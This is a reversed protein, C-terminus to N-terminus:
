RRLEVVLHCFPEPRSKQGIPTGEFAHLPNRSLTSLLPERQKRRSHRDGAEADQISGRRKQLLPLTRRRKLDVDFRRSAAAV